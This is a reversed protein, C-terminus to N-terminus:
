LRRVLVDIRSAVNLGEGVSFRHLWFKSLYARSTHIYLARLFHEMLTFLFGKM